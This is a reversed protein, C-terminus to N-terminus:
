SSRLTRKPRIEHAAWRRLARTRQEAAAETSQQRGDRSLSCLKFRPAHVSTHRIPDCSCECRGTSGDCHAQNTRFPMLRKYPRPLFSSPVCLILRRCEGQRLASEFFSHVCFPSELHLASRRECLQGHRHVLKVQDLPLKSLSYVYANRLLKSGTM